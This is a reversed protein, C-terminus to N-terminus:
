ASFLEKDEKRIRVIPRLVKEGTKGIRKRLEELEATRAKWAASEEETMVTEMGESRLMLRSKASISLELYLQIYCFMDALVLPDFEAKVSMLYKGSNTDTLRGRRIADLLAIDFSISHDMWQSIRHENIRDLIVLLASFVIITSALLLIAPLSVYNYLAHLVMPLLAALPLMPVWRSRSCEEDRMSLAINLISASTATCGIHMLSTGLGRCLATMVSMDRLVDTYVINEAFAFGGGVCAGYSMAEALFAMRGRRFLCVVVAGKLIEEVVPAVFASRMVWVAAMAVICSLVGGCFSVALEKHRLLAFSDLCKLALLYLIIPLVAVLTTM